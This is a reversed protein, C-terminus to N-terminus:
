SSTLIRGEDDTNWSENHEKKDTVTLNTTNEPKPLRKQQSRQTSLEFSGTVARQTEEWSLTSGTVTALDLGEGLHTLKCIGLAPGTGLEQNGM